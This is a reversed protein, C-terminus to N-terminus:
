TGQEVEGAIGALPQVKAAEPGAYGVRRGAHATEKAPEVVFASLTNWASCAECQGQWKPYERRLRFVRVRNEIQGNSATRRSCCAAPSVAPSNMRFPTPM